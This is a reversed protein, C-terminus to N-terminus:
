GPNSSYLNPVIATLDKSNWLRYELVQRSSVSTISVPISQLVEEKKQATVIVDDLQTSTQALQVDLRETGSPLIAVTKEVSAYGVATTQVIYTGVQANITFNGGVDTIAGINTNLLHVSVGAIPESQTGSITGSLSGTSQGHASFIVVIGGWLVSLGKM